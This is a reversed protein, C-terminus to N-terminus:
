NALPADFPNNYYQAGIDVWESLLRLEATTMFGAHNVAGTVSCGMSAGTIVQFFCSGSASGAVISGAVAIGSDVLQNTANLSLVDHADLLQTYARLQATASQAPDADLRLNGDPPVPVTVGGATTTRTATHCNICTAGGNPLTATSRQVSWLPNIITPYNIISLCFGSWVAQCSPVIPLNTTLAGYTYSIAANPGTPNTIGDGWADKFIVDGSIAAASYSASPSNSCSTAGALEEAMTAGPCLTLTAVSGNSAATFTAAEGGNLATSLGARGHSRGSVEVSVGDTATVIQAPQPTHCGNCSLVQGPLVAIVLTAGNLRSQRIERLLAVVRRNSNGDLIVADFREQALRIGARVFDACCEVRISLEELVTQLLQTSAEDASVLLASLTMRVTM